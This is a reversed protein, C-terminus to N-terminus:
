FLASTALVVTVAMLGLVYLALAAPKFKWPVDGMSGGQFCNLPIAAYM